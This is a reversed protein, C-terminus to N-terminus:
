DEIYVPLNERKRIIGRDLYWDEDVLMSCKASNDAKWLPQINTYHCAQRFEYIDNLDFRDIPIIHDM